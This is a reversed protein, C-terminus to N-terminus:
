ELRIIDKVFPVKSTVSCYHHFNTAHQILLMKNLKLVKFHLKQQVKENVFASYNRTELKNQKYFRDPFFLTQKKTKKPTMHVLYGDFRADSVTTSGYLAM